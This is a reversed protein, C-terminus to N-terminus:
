ILGYHSFANYIGDNEITDTIYDAATKANKSGDKMCIGIDAREMMAIDNDSDGIAITRWEGEFHNLVHDIATAKDYDVHHIDGGFGTLTLVYDEPLLARIEDPSQSFDHVSIVLVQKLDEESMQSPDKLELWPDDDELHYAKKLREKNDFHCFLKESGEAMWTLHMTGFTNKLHEFVNKPMTKYEKVEHDLIIHAGTSLCYGDFDIEWLLPDIDAKARGTNLIVKHGNAQATEIAKKASEPMFNRRLLTGDIDIFVISKM